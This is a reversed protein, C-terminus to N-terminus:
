VFESSGGGKRGGKRGGKVGGRKFGFISTHKRKTGFPSWHPLLEEGQLELNSSMKFNVKFGEPCEVPPCDEPGIQAQTTINCKTCCGEKYLRDPACDDVNPCQEQTSIVQM